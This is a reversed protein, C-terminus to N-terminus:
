KEVIFPLGNKFGIEKRSLYWTKGMDNSGQYYLWIRENEDRFVYPHGSESSNWDGEKGCALFPTDSCKEFNIGDLSVAVGIQQPTCNYSGGYFMYVKDEWVITAPAEICEGEWEYTPELISYTAAQIWSCCSFDSTIDACAVGIKQIKFSHDRTAFYLFLKGNFAVVDADIARGACWDKSPRFIPNTEDKIFQIGDDSIAHCIADTEWNGYTQYFLHVKGNLVIAGPAGIGKAECEQTLPLRAVNTWSEGDDSVAIGIGLKEEGQVEYYSSYYLFYKGKYKIVAPDKAFAERTGNKETFLM